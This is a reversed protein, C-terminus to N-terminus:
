SRQPRDRILCRYAGFDSDSALARLTDAGKREPDSYGNCGGRDHVAAAMDATDGTPIAVQEFAGAADQQQEYGPVHAGRREAGM